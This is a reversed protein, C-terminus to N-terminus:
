HNTNRNSQEVNSGKEIFVLNNYFHMGVIHKDFYSPTYGEIEFEMYNLCDLLQKMFGMSTDSRNRDQSNGGYERWYSTQVDEIVYLGNEALRPFLYAFSKLVDENRHSGDDIVIDVEGMKEMVTALFEEDSQSGKLTWIRREDHPSKDVIDIGYIRSNPFYTRWMRLSGGGSEPDDYGGIGIELIKLRQRRRDRFHRAYHQAYWHTGWKDSGYVISM